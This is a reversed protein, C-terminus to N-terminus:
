RLYFVRSDSLLLSLLRSSMYIPIRVSLAQRIAGRFHGIGGGGRGLRLLPRRGGDLRGVQNEVVGDRGDGPEDDEAAGGGEVLELPRAKDPEADAIPRSPRLGNGAHLDQVSQETIGM